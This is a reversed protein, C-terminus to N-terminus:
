PNIHFVIVIKILLLFCVSVLFQLNFILVAPHGYRNVAPVCHTRTGNKFNEQEVRKGQFLKWERNM